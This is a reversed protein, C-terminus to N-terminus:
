QKIAQIFLDTIQQKNEVVLHAGGYKSVDEKFKAEGPTLKKKSATKEGDKIEVFFTKGNRIMVCDCSNPLTHTDWVFFGLSRAHNIIESHNDDVRRARM